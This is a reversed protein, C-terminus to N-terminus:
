TAEPCHFSSSLHRTGLHSHKTTLMGRSHQLTFPLWSNLLRFNCKWHGHWSKAIDKRGAETMGFWWRTGQM